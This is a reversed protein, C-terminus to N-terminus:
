LACVVCVCRVCVPQPQRSDRAQAAHVRGPPGVPPARLVALSSQAGSLEHVRCLRLAVAGLILKPDRVGAYRVTVYVRTYGRVSVCM